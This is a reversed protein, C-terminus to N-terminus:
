KPNYMLLFRVFKQELTKLDSSPSSFFLFNQKVEGGTKEAVARLFEESPSCFLGAVGGPNTKEWLLFFPTPNLFNDRLEEASFILNQPTIHPQDFDEKTFTAWAFHEKKKLRRMVEGLAQLGGLPKTKYLHRIIEQHAGGKIILSAGTLLSSPTTKPSQFNQTASMVGLLLYTAIQENLINKKDGLEEILKKVIESRSSNTPSVLNITGFRENAPDTDINITPTNFFFEVHRPFTAGIHERDPIGVCILLDSSSLPQKLTIHRSDITNEKPTIFFVLGDPTKEYRVSEVAPCNISLSVENQKRFLEFVSPLFAYKEPVSFSDPALVCVGKNIKSLALSLGGCAGLVDGDPNQPIAITITHAADILRTIQQFINQKM